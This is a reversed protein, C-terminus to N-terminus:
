VNREVVNKKDSYQKIYEKLTSKIFLKLPPISACVFDVCRLLVPQKIIINLGGYYSEERSWDELPKDPPVYTINKCIDFLQNMTLNNQTYASFMSM